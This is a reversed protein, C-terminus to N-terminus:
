WYDSTKDDPKYRTAVYGTDVIKNMPRLRPGNNNSRNTITHIHCYRCSYNRYCTPDDQPIAASALRVVHNM